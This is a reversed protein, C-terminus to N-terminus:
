RENGRNDGGANDSGDAEGQQSYAGGGKAASASACVETRDLVPNESFGFGKEIYRAAILLM